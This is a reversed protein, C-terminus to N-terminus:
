VCQEAPVLKGDVRCKGNEDTGDTGGGCAALFLSAALAAALLLTKM